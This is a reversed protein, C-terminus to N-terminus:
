PGFDLTRYSFGCDNEFGFSGIFNPNQRVLVLFHKQDLKKKKESRGFFRKNGLFSKKRKPFGNVLRYSIRPAHELAMCRAQPSKRRPSMQGRVDVDNDDDDDDDDDNVDDVPHEIDDENKTRQCLEKDIPEIKYGPM